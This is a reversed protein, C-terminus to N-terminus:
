ARRMRTIEDQLSRHQEKCPILDWVSDRTIDIQKSGPASRNLTQLLDHDLNGSLQYLGISYGEIDCTNRGFGYPGRVCITTHSHMNM